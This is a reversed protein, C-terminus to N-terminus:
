KNINNHSLDKSNGLIRFHKFEQMNESQLHDQKMLTADKQKNKHLTAPKDELHKKAKEL